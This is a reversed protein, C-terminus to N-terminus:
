KQSRGNRRILEGIASVLKEIREDTAQFREETKIQAAMLVRALDALEAMTSELRTVRTSLTEKAMFLYEVFAYYCGGIANTFESV